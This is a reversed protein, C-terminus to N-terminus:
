DHKLQIIKSSLATAAFFILINQTYSPPFYVGFVLTASVIREYSKSKWIPCFQKNGFWYRTHGGRISVCDRCRNSMSQIPTCYEETTLIAMGWITRHYSRWTSSTPESKMPRFVPKHTIAKKICTHHLLLTSRLNLCLWGKADDIYIANHLFCESVIFALSYNPSSPWQNFTRNRNFHRKKACPNSDRRRWM